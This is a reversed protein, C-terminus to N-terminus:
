GFIYDYNRKLGTKSHSPLDPSRIGTLPKGCGDSGFVPGM